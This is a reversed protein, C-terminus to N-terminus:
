GECCQAARWHRILKLAIGSMEPEVSLALLDAMNGYRLDAGPLGRFGFGRDGRHNADGGMGTGGQSEPARIRDGFDGARQKDATFFRPGFRNRQELRRIM